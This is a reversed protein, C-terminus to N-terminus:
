DNAGHLRGLSDISVKIASFKRLSDTAPSWWEKAKQIDAKLRADNIRVLSLQGNSAITRLRWVSANCIGKSHDCDKHLLVTDGGMLSFKFTFDGTEPHFRQVVPLGKRKRDMAAYLSVIRPEWHKERGQSDIQAFIALHHNSSTAVYRTRNGTAITEVELSKSIRVRKIPVHKGTKTVLQPWDDVGANPNCRKLDGGLDIAKRRVADRIVPDVINEIDNASLGNVPKRIHVVSKGNVKRPKSYNTEDHLAGTLRHEPRHSVLLEQVHPRVSDIFNSWPSPITRLSRSTIAWNPELSATRSMTQIMSQRTLAITLADIAHHRHDTRSKGRTEGNSSGSAECLVAELGLGKRLTATVMGSSAFVVQRTGTETEIVRGGYLKAILDCALRSSYRTDNLQRTSFGELEELTRLEFRKQKGLNPTEWAKIRTLIADYEETNPYAEFPTKNRKVNRGQEHDCLTKNQFSNDPLRSFPIIHEVGFQPHEGFLSAFAISKGTYPCIGGCEEWLLVKEIDDRSPRELGGERVIREKVSDRERQRKRNLDTARAREQRPKKLDRALEIRVESPKGYEGVLANVVKRVETLAREVAPNRLNRLADLVPPIRDLPAELKPVYEPIEQRAAMFRKGDFMLPLVRRIAKRSLMCYGSPPSSKALRSAAEPVLRWKAILKRQLSEPSEISRWDDVVQRKEEDALAQWRPGFAEIMRRQVINGKLSREGGRELNFGINKDLGLHERIAKFTQDGHEDLLRYVHQRQDASLAVGMLKGPYIIELDNVKQLLRFRQAELTAWSARREGPELECEGILNKQAKIPRQYFLLRWIERHLEETLLTPHFRSQIAWIKGFEEEYMSRGTWIRRVKQTHPDLGAFYEGITQAGAARIAEDLESIATKVAGQDEGKKEIREAKRNSRFGRRQSLHYFVRGLEFPDLAHYLAAKRLHYIPLDVFGNESDRQRWKLSLASDLENLIVHRQASSDREVGTTGPLLNQKQLLRFLAAQRAARRRRQRRILRAGRRAVSNSEDQGKEVDGSVAPEFIRVGLKIIGTPDGSESLAVLAWGLSASGLDIGLIYDNEESLGHAM